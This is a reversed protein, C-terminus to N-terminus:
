LKCRMKHWSYPISLIGVFVFGIFLGTTLDSQFREQDHKAKIRKLEPETIIDTPHQTVDYSVIDGLRSDDVHTFHIFPHNLRSTDKPTIRKLLKVSEESNLKGKTDYNKKTFKTVYKQPADEDWALVQTHLILQHKYYNKIECLRAGRFIVEVNADGNMDSCTYITETQTTKVFYKRRQEKLSQEFPYGYYLTKEGVQSGVYATSLRVIDDKRNIKEPLYDVFADDGNDKHLAFTGEVVFNPTTFEYYEPKGDAILEYYCRRFDTLFSFDLSKRMHENPALPQNTYDKYTAHWKTFIPVSVVAQCSATKMPVLLM